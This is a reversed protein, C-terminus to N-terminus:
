HMSGGFNEMVKAWANLFQVISKLPMFPKEM